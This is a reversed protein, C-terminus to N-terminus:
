PRVTLIKVFALTREPKRQNEKTTLPSFEFLRALVPLDKQPIVLYINRGASLRDSVPKLENIDKVLVVPHRAYYPLIDPFESWAALYDGDNVARGISLAFDRDQGRVTNRLPLANFGAFLLVTLLVAPILQASLPHDQWVPGALEKKLLFVLIMSIGAIFGATIYQQQWVLLGACVALVAAAIGFLVNWVKRNVPHGSTRDIWAAILLVFLPLLPLMYHPRYHGGVTFVAITAASVYLTLRAVGAPKGPKRRNRFVLLPLLLSVPLLLQLVRFVYYFSLIEKWDSMTQLLSGSLQTQHIDIGATKLRQQLLLWWPLAIAILIALGSFPRLVKLTRRREPSCLLFLLFGLLFVAQIQPGKTLTALGALVWGSAALARQRVTGDAARWAGIWAFLQLVCLASYLFDPRANHSFGAFGQTSLLLLAALFGARAGYLKEGAYATSLLLLLGALMSCSRGTWPEVDTGAARSLGLTLWYNLPPKNLRPIQNFYPLVWDGSANMERATQLVFAEHDEVPISNIGAFLALWAVTLIALRRGGFCFPIRRVPGSQDAPNNM